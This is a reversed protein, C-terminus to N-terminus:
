IPSMVLGQVCPPPTAGLPPSLHAPAPSVSPLLPRSLFGATQRVAQTLNVTTVQKGKSGLALGWGPHTFQAGRTRATGGEARSAM